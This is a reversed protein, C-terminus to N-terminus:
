KLSEAILGSVNIKAAKNEITNTSVVIAGLKKLRQLANEAFVGHVAITYIKKAKMKKLQKIPELMTHGTSIIDDILAVTKGKVPNEMKVKTRVNEASYRKKHLIVAKKGFENAVKDAWQSSEIDPGILEINKMNRELKRVYEAIPKVATLTIVKVHRPFIEHLSHIRHLHPDVTIIEDCCDLLKAIIRNSVAEGGHFRKDQRMYALYPIVLVVKSAGLDRATHAAFVLEVLADNPEPHIGNVIIVIKNRLHPYAFRVYSDGDPFKKVILESYQIKLKRAIKRALEKSNSGAVILKHVKGIKIKNKIIQM